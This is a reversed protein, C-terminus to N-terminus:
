NHLPSPLVRLILKRPQQSANDCGPHSLLASISERVTRSALCQSDLHQCLPVGEPTELLADKEEDLEQSVIRMGQSRLSTAVDSWDGARDECLRRKKQITERRRDRVLINTM